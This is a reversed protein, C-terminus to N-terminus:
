RVAVYTPGALCRAIKGDDRDALCGWEALRLVTRAEADTSPAFYRKLISCLKASFELAAMDPLEAAMIQVMSDLTWQEAFQRIIPERDFLVHDEPPASLESVRLLMDTMRDGVCQRLEGWNACKELGDWLRILADVTEARLFILCGDVEGYTFHTIM